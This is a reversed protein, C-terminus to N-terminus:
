IDEVDVDLKKFGEAFNPDTLCKLTLPKLKIESEKHAKLKKNDNWSAINLLSNIRKILFDIDNMLLKATHEDLEPLPSLGQKQRLKNIAKNLGSISGNALSKIVNLLNGAEKLEAIVQKSSIIYESMNGSGILRNVEGNLLSAIDLTGDSYSAKFQRLIDYIPSFTINQRLKEIENVVDILSEDGVRAIISKIVKEAQQRSLHTHEMIFAIAEEFKASALDPNSGLAMELDQLIDALKLQLPNGDDESQTLLKNDPDKNVTESPDAVMPDAIEPDEL